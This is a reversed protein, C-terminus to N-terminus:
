SRLIQTRFSERSKDVKDNLVDIRQGKKNEELVWTLIRM